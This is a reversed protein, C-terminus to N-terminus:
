SKSKITNSFDTAWNRIRQWNRFDNLTGDHVIFGDDGSQAIRQLIKKEIYNYNSNMSFDFIGGFAERMVRESNIGINLLIKDIYKKKAKEYTNPNAAEGSSIFVGLSKNRLIERKQKLFKLAEKTWRGMRIGTGVLIGDYNDLSPIKVGDKLDILEVDMENKELTEAIEQAIEATSGYRSAYVVLISYM